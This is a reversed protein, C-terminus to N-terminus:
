GAGARVQIFDPQVDRQVVRGSRIAEDVPKDASALAQGIM